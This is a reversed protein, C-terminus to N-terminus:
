QSYYEVLHNANFMPDSPPVIDANLQCTKKERDVTLWQPYSELNTEELATEVSALKAGRESLSITQGQEVLVSPINVRRGNIQIHGHSVLQRAHRRTQAFGARYVLNDLRSELMILINEATSGKKVSAKQYVIHLQSAKIIGYAIRAQQLARNQESRESKGLRKGQKNSMKRAVDTSRSFYVSADAEKNRLQICRQFKKDM